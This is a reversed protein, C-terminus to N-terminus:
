DEGERNGPLFMRRNDFMYMRGTWSGDEPSAERLAEMKADLNDLYHLAMAEATMPLKPSGYEHLGHHSLIIHQLQVLREEPFGEIKAARNEVQSAGITLHGLLSGRDSYKFARKYELEEVKGIDHLLAGALLMDRDLLPYSEAVKLAMKAVALTHELLGGVFAHHLSVAAPCRKFATLFEEDGFFADLLVRLKEDAVGAVLEHLEEIMEKEDRASAPLFDAIDVDKENLKKLHTLKLQPMDRYTEVSARVMIFDDPAFSEHLQRTADWFKADVEGTRDALKVDLYFSGTRSTKLLSQKVLFAEQVLEGESLDEVFRKKM